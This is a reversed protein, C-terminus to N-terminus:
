YMFAHGSDTPPHIKKKKKKEESLRAYINTMMHPPLPPPLPPSPLPHEHQSVYECLHSSMLILTNPRMICMSLMQKCLLAANTYPSKQLEM